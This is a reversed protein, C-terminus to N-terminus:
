AMAQSRSRVRHWAAVFRAATVAAVAAVIANWPREWRDGFTLSVLMLASVLAWLLAKTAYDRSTSTDCPVSFGVIAGVGPKSQLLFTGSVEAVRAKMNETGMGRAVQLPDFGAGDDRISLELNNGSLGLRVKVHQARAHRAVNALAEQAARFLAEQAGPPLRGSPPLSGAELQVDAGTRLGLAECQQRLAALLGTNEVPAAQLQGVLAEMETMADRVSSRVQELASQAGDADSAFRAQATAASTQIAFLQQKVADHLDRALRAREEIRAAQRIQQEYQSQLADSTMGPRARDILVPSPDDSDFLGKFPRNFTPARACTAAVYLLVIAIALPTWGLVPPVFADFVAFSQIAFMAGLYLHGFAFWYLARRRSVPNEIRSLGVATLGLAVVIAAVARILGVRGWPIGPFDPNARVGPFFTPPSDAVLLGVITSVWAYIRLVLRTDIADPHQGPQRACLTLRAQQPWM